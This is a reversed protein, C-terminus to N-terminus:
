YCFILSFCVITRKLVPKESNQYSKYLLAKSKSSFLEGKCCLIYLGIVLIFVNDNNKWYICGLNFLYAPLFCLTQGVMKFCKNLRKDSM